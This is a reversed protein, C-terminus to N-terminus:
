KKKKEKGKAKKQEKKWVEIEKLVAERKEDYDPPPDIVFNVKEACNHVVANSAMYSQSETELNYVTGNFLSATNSSVPSLVFGDMVKRRSHVNNSGTGFTIIYQLKGTKSKSDNFANGVHTQIAAFKNLRISLIQLQLALLESVTAATWSQRKTFHGDGNLYGDVFAEVISINVHRMIFDPIRKNEAGHGFWDDLAKGLATSYIVVTPHGNNNKIGYRAGTMKVIDTTKALIGRTIDKQGLSFEVQVQGRKGDKHRAGSIHTSGEAVYLGMLWATSENLPIADIM